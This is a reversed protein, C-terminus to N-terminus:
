LLRKCTVKQFFCSHHWWSWARVQVNFHLFVKGSDFGIVEHLPLFMMEHVMRDHHYVKLDNMSLGDFKPNQLLNQIVLSMKCGTHSEVVMTSRDEAFDLQFHSNVGLNNTTLGDLANFWESVIISPM